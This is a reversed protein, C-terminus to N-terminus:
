YVGMFFLCVFPMDVISMISESTPIPPLYKERWMQHVVRMWLSNDEDGRLSSTHGGGERPPVPCDGPLKGRSGEWGQEQLRWSGQQRQGPQTSQLHCFCLTLEEPLSGAAASFIFCFPKQRFHKDLAEM